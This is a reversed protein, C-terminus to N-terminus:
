TTLSGLEVLVTHTARSDGEDAPLTSVGGTLLFAAAVILVIRKRM